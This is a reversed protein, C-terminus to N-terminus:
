TKAADPTSWYIRWQDSDRLNTLASVGEANPRDWRAGSRKLRATSTRCRAETPGSDIQWGNELFEPYNIMERRETIYALLKKAAARKPGRLPSMWKLLSEHAMEYGDHKLTNLLTTAWTQGTTEDEGFVRRRTAHVNEALHYFDLGRGHLQLNADDLQPPIWSAGDM